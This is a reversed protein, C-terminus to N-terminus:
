AWASPRSDGDGRREADRRAVIAERIADGKREKLVSAGASSWRRDRDGRGVDPRQHDQQVALRAGRGAPRARDARHAAPLGLLLTVWVASAWRGGYRTPCPATRPAPPERSRRRDIVLIAAAVVTPRGCTLYDMLTPSVNLFVVRVREVGFTDVFVVFAGFVAGPRRAPRRRRRGGGEPADVSAGVARRGGRSRTAVFGALLPPVVLMLLAFTVEEGILNLDTFNGILGVAALFITVIGAIADSACRRSAMLGEGGRRLRAAARAPLGAGPGARPVRVRRPALVREPHRVRQPVLAPGVAQLLGIVFGGLAAGGISGIGGLVAATFAAIGPRFGMTFQVQTFALSFLLGAIGALIGGVIFTIVVVRDVNIGMLSAIESDEAVARMSRGTTSRHVFLQLAVMAVIAAVFVLLQVKAVPIGGIDVGHGDLVDPTPVRAAPPRLVGPVREPHVALGRDRHDAARATARQAAAPVRHARAARGRPDVGVISVVLLIALAVYPNSNLFGSKQYADAFFFSVFAGAMFVEGHAFNIMRLIGYVLTYGLAILALIAGQGLGNVIQDVWFDGSYREGEPLTLTKYSASSWSSRRDDSGLVM